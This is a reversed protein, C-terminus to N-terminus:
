YNKWLTTFDESSLENDEFDKFTMKSEIWFGPNQKNPSSFLVKGKEDLGLERLVKGENDFEIFWEHLLYYKQQYRPNSNPVLSYIFRVLKDFIGERKEWSTAKKTRIYKM